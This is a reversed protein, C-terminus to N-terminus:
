LSLQLMVGEIPLVKRYRRGRAGLRSSIHTVAVWLETCDDHLGELQDSDAVAAVYQLTRATTDLLGLCLDANTSAKPPHHM